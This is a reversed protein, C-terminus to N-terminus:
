AIIIEENDPLDPESLMEYYEEATLGAYPDYDELGWGCLPFGAEIWKKNREYDDM